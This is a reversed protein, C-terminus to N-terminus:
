RIEQVYENGCKAREADSKFTFKQARDFSRTYAHKSGPMAVYKNDSSRRIVYM